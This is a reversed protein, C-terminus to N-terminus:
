TSVLARGPQAGSARGPVDLEKAAQRVVSRGGGALPRIDKM